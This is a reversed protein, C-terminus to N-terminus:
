QMHRELYERLANANNCEEYRAGYLLTVTGGRSKEAIERLLGDKGKLETFFRRKFEECKGPEHGFWKRLETSPAIDKLWLDVKAQEKKLGRPWIRDVLVRYGDAHDPKDYVRKTRIM